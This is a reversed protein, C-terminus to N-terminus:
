RAHVQRRRVKRGYEGLRKRWQRLWRHRPTQAVAARSGESKTCVGSQDNQIGKLRAQHVVPADSGVILLEMANGELCERTFHYPYIDVGSDKRQMVGAIFEDPHLTDDEGTLIQKVTRRDGGSLWTMGRPHVHLEGLWRIGPVASRLAEYVANAQGDDGSYHAPQHTARKGPGAIALVIHQDSPETKADSGPTWLSTGFLTVGTELGDRTELVSAVIQDFVDKPIVLKSM